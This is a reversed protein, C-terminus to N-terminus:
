ESRNQLTEGFKLTELLIPGARKILFVREALLGFFVRLFNSFIIERTKLDVM